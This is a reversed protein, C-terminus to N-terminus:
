NSHDGAFDRPLYEGDVSGWWILTGNRLDPTKCQTASASSRSVRVAYTQSTRTGDPSRVRFRVTFPGPHPLDFQFGDTASDADALTGGAANIWEVTAGVGAPTPTVTVESVGYGVNATYSTTEPNFGPSLAGSSLALSELSADQSESPDETIYLRYQDGSSTRIGSGSFEYQYWTTGATPTAASGGFWAPKDCVYLRLSAFSGASLATELHVSFNRQNDDKFEIRRFRYTEGSSEFTDGDLLTGFDASPTALRRYGSYVGSGGATLLGEWILRERAPLTPAACDALDGTTDPTRKAVVTYTNTITEDLSTVKVLFTNDGPLLHVQFGATESDADPLAEGEANQIELVAGGAPTATLKVQSNDTPTVGSYYTTEPDFAPTIGGQDSLELNSLTATDTASLIAFKPLRRSTSSLNVGPSQYYRSNGISWGAAKGSDESNSDTSRIKWGRVVGGVQRFGLWYTRDADLRAGVPAWFTLEGIDLHLSNINPPNRLTYEVNGRSKGITVVLPGASSLRQSFRVVASGLSHYGSESAGTRFSIWQSGNVPLEVHTSSLAQGLNSVYTDGTPMTPLTAPPLVDNNAVRVVLTEVIGAYDGGSATHNIVTEEDDGARRNEPATMRVSQPDAWTEPTFQLSTKDVTAIDTDEPAVTVTVPATPPATLVVTYTYSGGEGVLFGHHLVGGLQFIQLDDEDGEIGLGPSATARTVVVTYPEGATGDEATVRVKITNAGVDLAVDWATTGTDADPIAVDYEDLYAVTAGDDHTPTVTIQQVSNAVTARYDKTGSVFDLTGDSLTLGSLTADTSPADNNLVLTLVTKAIGTYDGGSATHNIATHEDDGARRNEPATVRVSQPDDWTEPTFQLSTKDVTVIDTDDPAVTVTVPATPPATLVVTYTYSDGEGVVFGFHTDGGLQFIQLDDEDGEIGLGPSATARTVVVTYPEGATGDEATVKVKITNEGPALRVQHGATNADADDLAADDGDLYAVTADPDTPTPTVTIRRVPALVSATYSTTAGDFTPDLSTKSLTLGSLTADTSPPTSAAVATGRIAVQMAFSGTEWSGLSPTNSWVRDNDLSWGAEGTEGDGNTTGISRRTGSVGENVVVWYLTGRALPVASSATFTNVADSTLSDPNTFSAVVTGGPRSSSNNRLLVSTSGSGSGLRIQIESITYGNANSGTKFRQAHVVNTASTDDEGHNSVLTTVQAQAPVAVAAALLVLGLGAMLRGLRRTGSRSQSDDRLGPATM